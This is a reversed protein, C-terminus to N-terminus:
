GSAGRRLRSFGASAMLCTRAAAVSKMARAVRMALPSSPINDSTCTASRPSVPIPLLWMMRSSSASAIRAMRLAPLSGTSRLRAHAAVVVADALGAGAHEIRLLVHAVGAGDRVAAGILFLAPLGGIHPEDRM